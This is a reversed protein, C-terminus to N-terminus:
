TLKEARLPGVYKTGNSSTRGPTSTSSVSAPHDTSAPPRCTGSPAQRLSSNGSSLAVDGERPLVELPELLVLLHEDV